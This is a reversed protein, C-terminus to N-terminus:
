AALRRRLYRGLGGVGLFVGIMTLPEPIGGPIDAQIPDNSRLLWDGTVTNPSENTDIRVDANLTFGSKLPYFINSDFLKFQTGGTVNLFENASGSGQLPNSAALTYVSQTVTNGDTGYFGTAGIGTIIETGIATGAANYGVGDYKNIYAGANGDTLRGATGLNPNYTGAPQEWVQFNDGKSQFNETGHNADILNSSDPTFQVALDSRDYFAGVLELGSNAPNTYYIDLNGVDTVRDTGTDLVGPAIKTIKFIGWSEGPFAEVSPQFLVGLQNAPYFPATGLDYTGNSQDYYKSTSSLYVPTYTTSTSTTQVTGNYIPGTEFDAITLILPGSYGGLSFAGATGSVATILGLVALAKLVRM